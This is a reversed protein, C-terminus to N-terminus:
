NFDITYTMVNNTLNTERPVKLVQATVQYTGPTPPSPLTVSCNTTQGKFTERITSTGTDSLNGVSVKCGVNYENYDGGNTVNLTFTPAPSAPITNTTTTSLQTTGVSVYNLQHGHLGPGTNNANAATTSLPAGIKEEIFTSQLWGLDTVIQEANIQAGTTGGIPIGAANLAKAIDPTVFTKYFVDSSFLLSTGVSIDYVGDRSTKKQAAAPIHKAIQSIGRERLQMVQVLASQAGSMASPPSYSQAQALQKRANDAITSLKTQLGSTNSTLEGSELDTFMQAGNNDSATILTDVDANYNKLSSNTQSVECGHILLAMVIVIV